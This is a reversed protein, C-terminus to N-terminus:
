IVYFHNLERITVCHTIPPDPPSPDLIYGVGQFKTINKLM